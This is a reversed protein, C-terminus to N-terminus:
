FEDVPSARSFVDLGLCYQNIRQILPYNDLVFHFRHANYVQPILCLDAISISDGYCVDICRPLSSLHTEIADFGTELWHHYWAETQSETAQFDQKLRQLVRLNNLPHIDCAVIQALRRVKARALPQIPLLAPTPYREDLYDIIALSQTLLTGDVELAPVLGQPNLALYDAHHQEGGQNILHIPCTEYPINKYNLAIRVRYCATSRPYDYLKM